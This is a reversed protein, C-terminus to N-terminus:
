NLIRAKIGQMRNESENQDSSLGYSHGRFRPGGPALKNM